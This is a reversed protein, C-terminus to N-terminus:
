HVLTEVMFVQTPIQLPIEVFMDRDRLKLGRFVIDSFIPQEHILDEKYDNYEYDKWKMETKYSDLTNRIERMEKRMDDKEEETRRLWVTVLVDYSQEGDILPRVVESQHGSALAQQWTQNQYVEPHPEGLFVQLLQLGFSATFTAFAYCILLGAVVCFFVFKSISFRRRPEPDPDLQLALKRKPEHVLPTSM